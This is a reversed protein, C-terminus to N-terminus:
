FPPDSIGDSEYCITKRYLIKVRIAIADTKLTPENNIKRM